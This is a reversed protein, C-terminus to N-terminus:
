NANKSGKDVELLESIYGVISSFVIVRGGEGLELINNTTFKKSM